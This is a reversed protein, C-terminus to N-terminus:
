RSGEVASLIREIGRVFEGPEPLLSLVLFAESEFDFFYGPHVLVHHEALLRLVLSEEDETAPVRLVASWGGEAGLLSVSSDNRLLGELTRFNDLVREHIASRISTGFDLLAPLAAQVPTSVSLFTDAIVELRSIAKAALSEPGSVLIWGLKMQPLGASKSLGGLVFTLARDEGTFSSVDARPRLPYGAFVEDSVIALNRERALAALWERDAAHLFSGTPNNPSVVLVARTRPTLSSELTHRDITWGDHFALRYPVARVAELATLSEFLPYSPRPVLVDEGADCLLKFLFAYAESTSATLVIRDPDVIQGARAYEGAVAERASRLGLPEPEYTRAEVDSLAGTLGDPYPLGVLTPNTETLDVLAVQRRQLEEVARSIANASLQAPLRSSFM